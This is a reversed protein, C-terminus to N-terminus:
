VGVVSAMNLNRLRTWLERGECSEHMSNGQKCFCCCLLRGAIAQSVGEDKLNWICYGGTAQHYLIWRGICSVHSIHTWGRPWSSGRSSSIAVWELIRAQLIRHDSSGPPSCDIPNCFTMCLQLSMTATTPQYSNFPVEQHDMADAKLFM